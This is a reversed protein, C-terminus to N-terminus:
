WPTLHFNTKKILRETVQKLINWDHYMQDPSLYIVILRGFSDSQLRIHLCVICHHIVLLMRWRNLTNVAHSFTFLNKTCLIIIKRPRTCIKKHLSQTCALNICPAIFEQRFQFFIRPFICCKSYILCVTPVRNDEIEQLQYIRFIQTKRVECEPVDM